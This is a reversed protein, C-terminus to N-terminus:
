KKLKKYQEIKWYGIVKYINKDTNEYKYYAWRAWFIQLFICVSKLDELDTNKDFQSIFYDIQKQDLERETIFSALDFIKNGLGSYEFDILKVKSNVLLINGEVMDNHLVVQNGSKLISIAKNCEEAEISLENNIFKTNQNVLFNYTNEFPSLYMDDTNLNHLNNLSDSILTIQKHTIKKDNFVKHKFYEIEIQGEKKKFIYGLKSLVKDEQCGFTSKFSDQSYIKIIKNNKEDLFIKNSLANNLKKM